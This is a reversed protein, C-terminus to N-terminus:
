EEQEPIELHAKLMTIDEQVELLMPYTRIAIWDPFGEEINDACLALVHGHCLAPACYCLLTKGRLKRVAERWTQKDTDEMLRKQMLAHYRSVVYERKQNENWSPAADTLKYPNGWKSPRGVFVYEPNQRWGAPADKIHIVKTRPTDNESM